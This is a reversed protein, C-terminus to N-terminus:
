FSEVELIVWGKQPRLSIRGLFVQNKKASRLSLLRRNGEISMDASGDPRTAYDPQLMLKQGIEALSEMGHEPIATNILGFVLFQHDDVIVVSDIKVGAFTVNPRIAAPQRLPEKAAPPTSLPPAKEAVPGSTDVPSSEKQRVQEPSRCGVALFVLVMAFFSIQMPKM